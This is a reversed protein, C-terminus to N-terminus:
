QTAVFTTALAVFLLILGVAAFADAREDKENPVADNRSEENQNGYSM